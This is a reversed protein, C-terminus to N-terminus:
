APSDKAAAGTSYAPVGHAKRFEYDDPSIEVLDFRSDQLGNELGRSDFRENSAVVTSPHTRMKPHMADLQEHVRVISGFGVFHQAVFFGIRVTGSDPFGRRVGISLM